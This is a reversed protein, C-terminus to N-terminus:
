KELVALCTFVNFLNYNSSSDSTTTEKGIENQFMNKTQVFGYLLYVYVLYLHTVIICIIFVRFYKNVIGLTFSSNKKFFSAQKHFSMVCHKQLGGFFPLRM